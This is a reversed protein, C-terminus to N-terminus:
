GRETAGGRAPRHHLLRRRLRKSEQLTACRKTQDAVIVRYLVLKEELGCREREIAILGATHPRTLRESVRLGLARAFDRAVPPLTLALLLELLHPPALTLM